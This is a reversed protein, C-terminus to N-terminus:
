TAIQILKKRATNLAFSGFIGKLQRALLLASQEMPNKLILYRVIQIEM